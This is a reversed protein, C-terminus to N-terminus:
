KSEEFFKRNAEKTKEILKGIKVQFDIKANGIIEEYDSEAWLYQLSHGRLVPEAWRFGCESCHGNESLQRNSHVPCLRMKGAFESSSIEKKPVIKSSM